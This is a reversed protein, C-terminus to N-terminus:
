EKKAAGPGDEAIGDTWKRIDRRTMNGEPLLRADQYGWAEIDVLYQARSLIPGRCTRDDPAPGTAEEILRGALREVVRSPIHDRRAPYIYGFLTIHALLVRWDEDGYRELLRDWDLQEARCHLLHAVDAGDFREREQVFSKSWIVEEAPCLKVQVGLVEGSVAHKFWRQDVQAVGNGSSFIVDIFDEGCYGKGLWHPFTLETRCGAEALVALAREADTPMVFIDFDKTHRAIGTYYAFAYAGGVLFPVGRDTLAHMMRQYFESAESSIESGMLTVPSTPM